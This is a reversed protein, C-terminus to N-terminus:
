DPAKPEASYALSSSTASIALAKTQADSPMTGVARPGFSNAAKMLSSTAVLVASSFSAPKPATRTGENKAWFVGGSLSGAFTVALVAALPAPRDERSTM